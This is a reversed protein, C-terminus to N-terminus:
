SRGEFNSFSSIHPFASGGAGRDHIISAELDSPDSIFADQDGTSGPCQSMGVLTTTRERIERRKCGPLNELLKTLM